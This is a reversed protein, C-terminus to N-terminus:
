NVGIAWWFFSSDTAAGTHDTEIFTAGTTSVPAAGIFRGSSNVCGGAILIKRFAKGFTIAKSGGVPTNFGIEIRLLGFEFNASAGDQYNIAKLHRDNHHLTFIAPVEGEQIILKDFWVIDTATDSGFNLVINTPTADTIIKGSLTVFSTSATNTDLNTSGGTTWIRATDGATAKARVSLYYTTSAKLNSITITLGENGAGNSTIKVAFAGGFGDREGTDRSVDTPAGKKSFGDPAQNATGASWSEFSGGPILNNGQIAFFDVIQQMTIKKTTNVSEDVLPIEDALDFVTLAPLESIKVNGM